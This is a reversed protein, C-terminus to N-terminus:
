FFQVGVGVQKTAYLVNFIRSCLRFVCDIQGITTYETTTKARVNAGDIPCAM